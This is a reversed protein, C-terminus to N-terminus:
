GRPRINRLIKIVSAVVNRRVVLDHVFDNAASDIEIVCAKSSLRRIQKEISANLSRLYSVAIKSEATRARKQIRELEIEPNCILHILLTRPRLEKEVRRAVAQFALLDNKKLTVSAYAKDLISSFDCCIRNRPSCVTKIQHFHQLLFVLEAEFAYRSANEYFARYFPNKHFQELVGVFGERALIKALSTKGSAIGGCIEIRM